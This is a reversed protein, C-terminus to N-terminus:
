WFAHVERPCDKWKANYSRVPEWSPTLAYSDPPLKSNKVYKSPTVYGKIFLERMKLEIEEPPSGFGQALDSATAPLSLLIRLDSESLMVHLMKITKEFNSKPFKLREALEVYNDM